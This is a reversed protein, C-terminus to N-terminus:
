CVYLMMMSFTYVDSCKTAQTDWLKIDLLYAPAFFEPAQYREAGNIVDQVYGARKIGDFGSLLPRGDDAIIVADQENGNTHQRWLNSATVSWGLTSVPNLSGHVIDEAHLYALGHAVGLM